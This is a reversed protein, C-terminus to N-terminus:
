ITFLSRTDEKKFRHLFRPWEIADVLEDTLAAEPDDSRIICFALYDADVNPYILHELEFRRYWDKGMDDQKCSRMTKRFEVEEDCAKLWLGKKHRPDPVSAGRVKYQHPDPEPGYFFNRDLYADVLIPGYERWLPDDEPVVMRSMTYAAFQFMYDEAEANRYRCERHECDPLTRDAM